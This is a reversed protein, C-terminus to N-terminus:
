SKACSARVCKESRFPVNTHLVGFSFAWFYYQKVEHGQTKVKFM